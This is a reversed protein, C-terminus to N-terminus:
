YEGSEEENSEGYTALHTRPIGGVSIRHPRATRHMRRSGPLFENLVHKDRRVVSRGDGTIIHFELSPSHRGQERRGDYYVPPITIGRRRVNM